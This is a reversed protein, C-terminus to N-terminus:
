VPSRRYTCLTAMSTWRRQLDDDVLFIMKMKLMNSRGTMPQHLFQSDLRISLMHRISSQGVDIVECSSMCSFSINSQSVRMMKCKNMFHPQLKIEIISKREIPNYGVVSSSHENTLM